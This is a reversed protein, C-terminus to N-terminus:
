KEIQKIDIIKLKVQGRLITDLRFTVNVLKKLYKEVETISDFGLTLYLDRDIDILPQILLDDDQIQAKYSTGSIMKNPNNRDQMEWNSSYIKSVKLKAQLIIM